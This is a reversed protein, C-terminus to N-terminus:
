ISGTSATHAYNEGSLREIEVRLLHARAAAEILSSEADLLEKQAASLELYSYRGGEFATRTADLASELQPLVSVQLANFENVALKRQQDLILLQAQMRLLATQRETDVRLLNAQATTIAGAARRKSVLPISVQFTLATDNLEALHRIGAGVEIDASRRSRAERM